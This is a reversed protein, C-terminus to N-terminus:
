TFHQMLHARFRGTKTTQTEKVNGLGLDPQGRNNMQESVSKICDNQTEVGTHLHDIQIQLAGSWSSYGASVRGCGEQGNAEERHSVM